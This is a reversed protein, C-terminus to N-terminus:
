ATLRGANQARFSRSTSWLDFFDPDSSVVRWICYEFSDCPHSPDDPGKGKEPEGKDDFQRVKLAMSLKPLDHFLFLRGLEFLKNVFYIRELVSPNVSGIRLEIEQSRIEEAYGKMIEEGSADPFWQMKNTPFANRMVKPAQGIEGFSWEKVAYLVKGRKVVAVGKNYGKNLDQGVKVVDAPQVAFEKEECLRGGVRHKDEDYSAYVRGTTLNVFEGELYARRELENYIAYLDEYYSPDNALNEKTRGKV